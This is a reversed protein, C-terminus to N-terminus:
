KYYWKSSQSKEYINKMHNHQVCNPCEFNDESIMVFGLLNDKRKM